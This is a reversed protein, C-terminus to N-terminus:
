TESNELLRGWFNSLVTSCAKDLYPMSKLRYRFGLVFIAICILITLIPFTSLNEIALSIDRLQKEM